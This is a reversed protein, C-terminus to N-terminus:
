TAWRGVEIIPRENGKEDKVKREVLAESKLWTRILGKIREKGARTTADIGLVDAVAHGVWEKAQVNARHCKGDVAKQVALLDSVSVGDLPNPWEWPTVVGVNDGNGLEVSVMEFWEADEAAPALNTKDDAVRFHRAHTELGAKEAEEKTMRNLVRCSRAAAILSGAGRAAEATAEMGGLKRVHHVLLICCNAREAVAGWAKAVADIAGNDNEPVRHSSVFPDVILVDICLATLADVLAEVVPVLVTASGDVVEAICLATDRGSDLFLRDGVMTPTIRHHLMTAAIRRELEDRPDELNWLWVRKPAGYVPAGVIDRGSALAITDAVVLSTKGAAGPAILCSVFGRILSRGYVWERPPITAPDRWVFPTATFRPPQSELMRRTSPRGPEVAGASPAANPVSRASRVREMVTADTWGAPLPDALDWTDPLGDPLEVMAVSRAGAALAREAAATATELGKGSADADPWLVVDRGRLAGFDARQLGALGGAWAAVVVGDVLETAAEATKEGEVLLVPAMPNADLDLRRFLETREPWRWEWGKATRILPRFQKQRKGRDDLAPNGTRDAQDFRCHFMVLRGAADYFRWVATAPGLQPHAPIPAAEEIPLPELAQRPREQRAPRSRAPPTGDLGLMRAAERMAEKLEIRRGRAYLDLDDGTFAGGFDRLTEGREPNLPIVLSRGAAGDADGLHFNGAVVRGAPFVRPLWDPRNRRLAAAIEEPGPIM